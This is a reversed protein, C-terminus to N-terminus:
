SAGTSAFLLTHEPIELAPVPKEPRRHWYDGGTWETGDDARIRGQLVFGEHCKAHGEPLAPLRAGPHFRILSSREGTERDESLVLRRGMPAGDPGPLGTWSTEDPPNLYTVPRSATAGEVMFPECADRADPFNFDLDAPSRGLFTTPVPVASDFGHVAFAPHFVYGHATLWTQHDFTMAGDLILLEEYVSHYHCAGPVAAGQDPDFRFLATRDGSEPNHNLMKCFVGPALTRWPLAGSSLHEIHHRM